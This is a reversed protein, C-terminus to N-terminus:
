HIQITPALGRYWGCARHPPQPVIENEKPHTFLVVVVAWSWPCHGQPSHIQPTPKPVLNTSTQGQLNIAGEITLVNVLTRSSPTDLPLNALNITHLLGISSSVLCNAMSQPQSAIGTSALFLCPSREAQMSHRGLSPQCPEVVLDLLTHIRSTQGQQHRIRQHWSPTM